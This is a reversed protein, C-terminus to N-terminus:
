EEINGPTGELFKVHKIAANITIRHFGLQRNQVSEVFAANEKVRDFFDELVDIKKSRALAKFECVLLYKDGRKKRRELEKLLSM